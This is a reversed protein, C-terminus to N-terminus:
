EGEMKEYDKEFIDTKCVSNNGDADTIIWDGPSVYFGCGDAILYGYRIDNRLRTEDVAPHDGMKFWQVADVIVLKKLYKM